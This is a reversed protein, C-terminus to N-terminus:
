LSIVLSGMCAGAHVLCVPGVQKGARDWFLLEYDNSNSMIISSDISWDIGRVSSSHGTCRAIRQYGKQLSRLPITLHVPNTRHCSSVLTPQPPVSLLSRLFM